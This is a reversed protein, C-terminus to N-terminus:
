SVPQHQRGEGDGDARPEYRSAPQKLIPAQPKEACVPQISSAGYRGDLWGLAILQQKKEESLVNSM